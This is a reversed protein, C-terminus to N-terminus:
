RNILLRKTKLLRHHNDYIAMVYVGQSLQSVDVVTQTANQASVKQGHVNTIEILAAREPLNDLFVNDSAPNPYIRIQERAYEDDMNLGQNLISFVPSINYFIGDKAKLMIRGSSTSAIDKPLYIMGLGTNPISGLFIPFSRANDISLYVDLTKCDIPASTTNGPDWQIINIANTFFPTQVNPSIVEFPENGIVNLSVAEWAIAGGSAHNDRATARFRLTREGFTLREGLVNAGLAVSRFMPLYRTGDNEPTFSRYIPGRDQTQSPNAPGLDYQEWVLTWPDNEPDNVDASLFFPTGIPINVNPINPTIIPASNGTPVKEACNNGFSNFAFNNIQILSHHHFYDDSQNQLNPACIGAYGMITSASLPEFASSSSRQCNNNQTHTAGFQHGIEHAVYDIDYPDGVPNALGTVGRAKNATCVCQLSALGGAGTSFAHGIDYANSGIRSNIVSGNVSIMQTSSSNNFPDNAANLFILQDNDAVLELTIGADVEYVSNVRNVTTVIAALVSSITGGHFQSYNSTTAIALRYKNIESEVMINSGSEIDDYGFENDHEEEVGCSWPSKGKVQERRYVVRPSEATADTPDIYYRTGGDVIVARFGTYPNYDFYLISGNEDKGKGSLIEPFKTKLDPHMTYSPLPTFTGFGDESWQIKISAEKNEQSFQRLIEVDQEQHISSFFTNSEVAVYTTAIRENDSFVRTIQQAVANTTLLLLGLLLFNSFKKIGNM